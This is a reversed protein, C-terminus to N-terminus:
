GQVQYPNHVDNNTTQRRITQASCNVDHKLQYLEVLTNFSSM